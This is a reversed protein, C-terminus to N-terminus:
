EDQELLIEYRVFDSKKALKDYIRRAIENGERTIWYLESCKMEAAARKVEAILATALGMDRYNEDVYLDELYCHFSHTWTSLQYHFHVFGAIQGDVEIVASQIVPEAAILRSWLIETAPEFPESEYFELYSYYLRQWPERDGESLPRM